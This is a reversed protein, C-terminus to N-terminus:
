IEGLSLSRKPSGGPSGSSFAELNELASAAYKDAEREAESRLTSLGGHATRFTQLAQVGGAKCILNSHDVSLYRYRACHM